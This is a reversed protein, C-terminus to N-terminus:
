VCRKPMSPVPGAGRRRCSPSSLVTRIAGRRTPAGGSWSRPPRNWRSRGTRPRRRWWRGPRGRRRAAPSRASRPSPRSRSSWGPRAPRRWAPTRTTRSRRRASRRLRSRSRAPSSSNTCSQRKYVDLHTYSVARDGIGGGLMRHGAQGLRNRQVAPRVVDGAALDVDAVLGHRGLDVALEHRQAGLEVAAVRHFDDGRGSRARVRLPEVVHAGAAGARFDAVVQAGDLVLFRHGEALAQQALGQLLQVHRQRGGVIRGPLLQRAAGAGARALFDQGVDAQALAQGGDHRAAERGFVLQHGGGGRRHVQRDRICM